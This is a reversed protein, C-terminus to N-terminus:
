ADGREPARGRRRRLVWWAVAVIALVVLAPGAFRYVRGLMDPLKSGFLWAAVAWFGNWVLAGLASYFAYQAVDMRFIGASLISPARIFGVFRSAFVTRGGHLYFWENVKALKDPDIHFYRGWRSIFAAGGWRGLWYGVLNGFVSGATSTGIVAWMAMEGRSVAFGAPIFLFEFPIPLGTGEVAMAIFLTWYGHDAMYRTVTDQFAKWGM